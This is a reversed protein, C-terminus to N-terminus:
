RRHRGADSAQVSDITLILGKGTNDIKTWTAGNDGSHEWLVSNAPAYSDCSIVAETGQTIPQHLFSNHMSSRCTVSLVHQKLSKNGFSPPINRVLPM